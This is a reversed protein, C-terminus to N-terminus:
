ASGPRGAGRPFRRRGSPRRPARPRSLGTCTPVPSHDPRPQDPRPQDPRASEFQRSRAGLALARGPQAVDREPWHLRAHPKQGGRALELDLGPVVERVREAGGGLLKGAARGTPSGGLHPVSETRGPQLVRRKGRPLWIKARKAAHKRRKAEAGDADAPGALELSAPTRVATFAARVASPSRGNRRSRVSRLAARDWEASMSRASSSRGRRM